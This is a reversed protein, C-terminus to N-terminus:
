ERSAVPSAATVSIQTSSPVRHDCSPAAADAEKGTRALANVWVVADAGDGVGPARGGQGDPMRGESYGCPEGAAPAEIAGSMGDVSLSPVEELVPLPARGPPATHAGVRPMYAHRSRAADRPAWGADGGDAFGAAPAAGGITESDSVSSGAVSGSLAGAATQLGLSGASPLHALEHNQSLWADWERLVEAATPREAPERALCRMISPELRKLHSRAAAAAESDGEWPYLPADPGGGAAAGAAVRLVHEKPTFPPFVATDTLLEFAMVGVAWLDLAETAHITSEGRRLANVAEPAAYALSLM